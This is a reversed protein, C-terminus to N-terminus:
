ENIDEKRELKELRIDIIELRKDLTTLIKQNIFGLYLCAFIPFGVDNIITIILDM